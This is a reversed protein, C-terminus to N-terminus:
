DYDGKRLLYSKIQNEIPKEYTKSDFNHDPGSAEPHPELIILEAREEIAQKYRDSDRFENTNFAGAHAAEAYPIPDKKSAYNFSRYCLDNTIIAAPAIAVVIVRDRIEAPCNALANKTHIAGQSHCFHLYKAQPKTKNREHFESWEEILLKSTNPSYGLYNFGAIELVDTIPGHTQNHTWHISMDDAYSQLISCAQVADLKENLIGNIGGIQMHPYKYGPSDFTSSARNVPVRPEPSSNPDVWNIGPTYRPFNPLPARQMQPVPHLREQFQQQSFQYSAKEYPYFEDELFLGRDVFLMDPRALEEKELTNEFAQNDHDIVPTTKLPELDEEDEQDLKNRVRRLAEAGAAVTSASATGGSSVAVVTVTTVVAVVVLGIIIEKKHKKWKKKCWSRLGAQIVEGNPSIFLKEIDRHTLSSLKSQSGILLLGSVLDAFEPSQEEQSFLMKTIKNEVSSRFDTAETWHIPRGNWLGTQVAWGAFDSLDFTEEIDPEIEVQM